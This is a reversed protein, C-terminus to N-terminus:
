ESLLLEWESLLTNLEEDTSTYANGLRTVEAVNGSASAAELAGSLNVMDIELKHIREEVQQIRKKRQYPNLTPLSANKAPAPQPKKDEIQSTPMTQGDRWALYEDYRGEYVIMETTGDGAKRPVHLAWIQTALNRILYRDHSILLITGNFEALVTELIEQSLIDLHNTPEDLLLLNAGTLALKALAVRGREGGSLASVPKYVDDGTFLFTALYNRAESIPINQASLIEDLVSRNADLGEHAQAFYGIEVGTGLTSHGDLPALQGLVTKLFTSKGAGNPGILAAVEGRFLTIDPVSFLPVRDDHYGIELNETMLVKDGSRIRTSLNLHLAKLERPRIIAEDRLYRELRKRRGQAQRTNQGAINRRIYDEEKAVFEQQREHESLMQAHRAERSQVYKSYSGRYEELRGFILEWVHNVVNDMFYRDHSVVLLAGDFGKLWAELWEIAAIDLHNTPEDLILLDPSELLLRALLARTKQGGSLQAIPRRYDVEDFGLGALVQEIRLNYEYGGDAEFRHQADGYAALLAEDDPSHALADAMEGLKKEQALLSRFALLMEEWLTAHEDSLELSAEQPLFGVQLGKSHTVIGETPDDRRALINLLTTKGAGNPGVLAIRASHPISISVGDFIDHQGFSRAVNTATVLAM